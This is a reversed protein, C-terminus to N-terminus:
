CKRMSLNSRYALIRIPAKHRDFWLITTSGGTTKPVHNNESTIKPEEKQKIIGNLCIRNIKM